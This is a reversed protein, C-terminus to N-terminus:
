KHLRRWKDRQRRYNAATLVCFVVMSCLLFTSMTQTLSITGTVYKFIDLGAIFLVIAIQAMDLATYESM